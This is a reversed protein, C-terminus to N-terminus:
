ETSNNPKQDAKDADAGITPNPKSTEAASSGEPASSQEKAGGSTDSSQGETSKMASAAASSPPASSQEAAGGSTDASGTDPQTAQKSAEPSVGAGTPLQSSDEAALAPALGLLLAVATTALLRNMM